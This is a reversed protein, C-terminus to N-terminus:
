AKGLLGKKKKKKGQAGPWVKERTEKQIKGWGGEGGGKKSGGWKEGGGEKDIEKGALTTLFVPGGGV